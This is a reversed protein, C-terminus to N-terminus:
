GGVGQVHEERHVDRLMSDHLMEEGKVEVLEEM